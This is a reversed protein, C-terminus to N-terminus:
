ALKTYKLTCKWDVTQGTDGTARVRVDNGSVDFICTWDADSTEELVVSTTGEQTANGASHRYFCGKKQIAARNTGDTQRAVAIFEIFYVTDDDLTLSTLTATTTSSTQVEVPELIWLGGESHNGGLETDHESLLDEHAIVATNSADLVTGTSGSIIFSNAGTYLYTHGNGIIEFYPNSDSGNARIYVSNGTTTGGIIEFHGDRNYKLNGNMFVGGQDNVSFISLASDNEYVSFARGATGMTSADVEVQLGVGTTVTSANIDFGNGTTASTTYLINAENFYMYDTGDQYITLANTNTTYLDVSGANGCLLGTNESTNAFLALGNSATNGGYITTNTAAPAITFVSSSGGAQMTFLAASEVDMRVGGTGGNVTIYPYTDADNAYLTLNDGTSDGGKILGGASRPELWISNGTAGAERIFLSNSATIDIVAEAAGSLIMRPYTDATNPRLNLTNSTTTGGFITHDANTGFTLNGAVNLAGAGAFATLAGINFRSARTSSHFTNTM